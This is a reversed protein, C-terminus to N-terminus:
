SCTDFFSIADQWIFVIRKVILINKYYLINYSTINNEREEERRKCLIIFSCINCNSNNIYLQTSKNKGRFAVYICYMYYLMKKFLFLEAFYLIKRYYTYSYM